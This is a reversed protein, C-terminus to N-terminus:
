ISHAKVWFRGPTLFGIQVSAILCEQPRPLALFLRHQKYVSHPLFLVLKETVWVSKSISIWTIMHLGWQLQTISFRDPIHYWMNGDWLFVDLILTEDMIIAHSLINMEVQGYYYMLCKWFITVKRLIQDPLKQKLSFTNCYILNLERM